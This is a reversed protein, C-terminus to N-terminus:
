YKLLLTIEFGQDLTKTTTTNDKALGRPQYILMIKRKVSNNTKVHSCLKSTFRRSQAEYLFSANTSHLLEFSFTYYYLAM